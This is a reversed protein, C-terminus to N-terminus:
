NLVPTPNSHSSAAAVEPEPYKTEPYLRTVVFAALALDVFVLWSAEPGVSGGTLWKPGELRSNFLHGVAPQGSDPVGYLFTQAYDWAAHFGVAFWLDGTRRLTLCFFLGVAVVAALGVPSEGRNTGHLVGFFVSTVIAAPWFGMGRTLVFQPYGRFFYEEWLGVLLFAIAWLLAYKVLVSGSLALNGLYFGHFAHIALLLATLSVFGLVAGMWFTSKFARRFPLGYSGLSRKELRSIIFLPGFLLILSIVESIIVLQPSFEPANNSSSRTFTAMIQLIVFPIIPAIFILARWGSRLGHPGLFIGGHRQPFSPVPPGFPPEGPPPSLSPNSTEDL